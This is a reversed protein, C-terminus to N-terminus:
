STTGDLKRHGLIIKAFVRQAWRQACDVVTFPLQRLQGVASGRQRGGARYTLQVIAVLFNVPGTHKVGGVGGGGGGQWIVSCKVFKFSNADPCFEAIRQM